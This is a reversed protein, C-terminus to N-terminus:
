NGNNSFDIDDFSDATLVQDFLNDLRVLDDIANIENLVTDSIDSFKHRLLKLVATQKEDIRGQEIGQQLGENKGQQILAEAGTMILNKVETDRNHILIQEIMPEREAQPCRSVVLHSLYVMAHAHLVTEEPSLTDLRALAETLTDEISRENATVQQAVSMLWGFPHDQVLFEGTDTDNVALFLTDFTPVFRTMLEPVDMVANLSVPIEWQRKGTYFVIPLIPSLRQQSAPVKAQQQEELQDRWIQGMYAHLRFGMMRDVTSQHEILIYITVAEAPPADRFPVTFVIDSISDRLTADIYSRRERNAQSFDLHAALDRALFLLLGRLHETHKLLFRASKDEFHGIDTRFLRKIEESNLINNEIAM